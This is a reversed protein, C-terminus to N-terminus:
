HLGNSPYHWQIQLRVPPGNNLKGKRKLEDKVRNLRQHAAENNSLKQILYEGTKLYENYDFKVLLDYAERNMQREIRFFVMDLPTKQTNDKKDSDVNLELLLKVIDSRGAIAAYHLPNRGDLDITNPNAGQSILVKVADFNNNSCAITLDKDLKIQKIFNDNPALDTPLQMNNDYIKINDM